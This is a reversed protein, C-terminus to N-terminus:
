LNEEKLEKFQQLNQATLEIGFAESFKIFQQLIKINM